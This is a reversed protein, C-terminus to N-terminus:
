KCSKPPPLTRTLLSCVLEMELCRSERRCALYGRTTLGLERAMGDDEEDEVARRGSSSVEETRKESSSSSSEVGVARSGRWLAERGGNDVRLESPTRPPCVSAGYESSTDSPQFPSAPSATWSLLTLGAYPIRLVTWDRSSPADNAERRRERERASAM